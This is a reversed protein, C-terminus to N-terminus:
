HRQYYAFPDLIVLSDNSRRYMVNDTYIDNSIVYSRHLQYAFRAFDEPLNNVKGEPYPRYARGADGVVRLDIAWNRTQEQLEIVREIPPKTPRFPGELSYLSELMEMICVCVGDENPESLYDVRLIHDGKLTGDFCAKLYLYCGDERSNVLKIVKDPLAPHVIVGLNYSGETSGADQYIDHLADDNLHNIVEDTIAAFAQDFM